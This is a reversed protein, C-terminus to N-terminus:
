DSGGERRAIAVSNTISALGEIEGSVRFSRGLVRITSGLEAGLTGALTSELVIEGAGPREGAGLGSRAVADCDRAVQALALADVFRQGPERRLIGVLVLAVKTRQGAGHLLSPDLRFGADLLCLCPAL